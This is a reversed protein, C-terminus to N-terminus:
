KKEVIPKLDKGKLAPHNAPIRVARFIQNAMNFGGGMGGGRAGGRGAGGAGAAGAGMQGRMSAMGAGRLGQPAAIGQALSNADATATSNVDAPVTGIGRMGGFGRAGGGAGGFGGMMGGMMGSGGAGAGGSLGSKSYEFEWVIEKDSTVEFFHGSSGECILTNGNPLRQAGSINMAYFNTKNNPDMYQWVPKVDAFVKGNMKFHGNDDVPLIFEEVSSYSGDLRNPGNNFILLHGEGPLGKEIWHIDHPSFFKKDKITGQKYAAPNGYRYILNGGKGHKGGTHGKAQETTTSHDIVWIESITYSSVIILDLDANYDIANFHTWDTVPIPGGGMMGGGMGGGAGGRRNGQGAGRASEDWSDTYNINILEPHESVNGYNPKNPDFDQILHDWAYWKWVVEATNPGTPKIEVICDPNQEGSQFAPNRGAAISEEATKADWCILLINGNPMPEIDHHPVETDTTYIYEWDLSGDWKIKQIKGGVGIGGPQRRENGAGQAGAGRGGRGGMMGGGGMMGATRSASRLLNGNDLFYTSFGAGTDMEWKHVVQGDMNILYTTTGFLTQFLTYGEFAKKNNTQSQSSGVLILNLVVLAMVNFLVNRKM